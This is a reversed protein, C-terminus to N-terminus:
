LVSVKGKTIRDISRTIECSQEQEESGELLGHALLIRVGVAEGSGLFTLMDSM